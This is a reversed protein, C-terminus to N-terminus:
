LQTPPPMYPDPVPLLEIKPPPADYRPAIPLKWPNLYLLAAELTEALLEPQEISELPFGYAIVAGSKETAPNVVAATLDGVRYNAISFSNDRVSSIADPSEVHYFRPNPEIPHTATAAHRNNAWWPTIDIQGTVAIYSELLDIGLVEHAFKQDALATSDNSHPNALLDTAIDSGSVLLRGNDALHRRLAKQLSAPFPKFRRTPDVNGRVSERQKGLILDIVPMDYAKQAELRLYGELSASVYSQKNLSFAEGHLAPYDFSNGAVTKGIYDTYCAGHGPLLDDSQWEQSRNFEYQSGIYGVSRIYPVGFDIGDLFGAEISDNFHEPASIRTFGNVILIPPRDNDYMAASLIESPFSRGGRNVAIVRFSMTTGTEIPLEISRRSTTAVQQFGGNIGKRQEIIYSDATATEELPDDTPLWSLQINGSPLKQLAFSRVPLPQVVPEAKSDAYLYRLIGKYIARSVDFRFQPDLGLTMDAHNQHSLLEILTAPVVPYRAEIYRRNRLKRKSWGPQHLARIDDVISNVITATLAKVTSRSRGNGLRKGGDTCYIGLTGITATDNTAGADTHLALAMDIPINLGRKAKPNSESGGTLYNVWNPRCRIDANYDSESEEPSYVSLPFGAYQLWYRAGEVWRPQRSTLNDDGRAVNGIGGGVKVADALVVKGNYDTTAASLTVSAPSLSTDFPFEGIRMWTGAGMSQDVIFTEEGRLSNITYRAATTPNDVKPYSVYLTYTGPQTIPLQWQAVPASKADLSRAKAYRAAGRTMPNEGEVIYGKSFGYGRATTKLWSGTESYGPTDPSDADVIVEMTSTDRERPIMVYAGANELMPALLDLIYTSTYVDEITTNLPARQFVWQNKNKNYYAGHSNWLAMNRNSLGSDFGEDGLKKVPSSADAGVLPLLLLLISIIYKPFYRDPAPYIPKM